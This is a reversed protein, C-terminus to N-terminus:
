APLGAKHLAQSWRAFDQPRRLPFLDKLNSVRLAPDRSRMHAMLKRAQDLRGALAHSAACARIGTLYNPGARVAKEAWHSAEDYRGAFFHAYAIGAHVKFILPDFPSLRIARGHHEIATEPEGCFVRHWGSVYWGAALNPNLTLAQDILAVGSDIDGVVSALVHAAKCLAIADDPGLEAARRALRGAEEIERPRDKFWGYSKRQVYCYAAMGYACAFTPDIAIAQHFLRLAETISEETWQYVSGMGRLYYDYADLSDTPKRKAREIEAHELKPGITGAVSATVQDQLGFVDELGGDFRNAWLHAGTAADILQATIRLRNAAKRVSGELLYRVGLERGIRKADVPRGKYTFSSSRAIVFLWRFQSLATTLDESIGDAFYEQDPDGSLNDFPLVAISPKDPLSLGAGVPAPAAAPPVAKDEAASKDAGADEEERVDGVFRFGKRIMTRILRQREGSDDIAQRVAAIRSSLTSESVIRGNWVADILDDGSVVRDRNHVLYLLLDFVQPEIAVLETGRRLERRGPDLSFDEFAYIV